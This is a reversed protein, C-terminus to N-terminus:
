LKVIKGNRITFRLFGSPMEIPPGGKNRLAPRRSFPAKLPGLFRGAYNAPRQFKLLKILFIAGQEAESM